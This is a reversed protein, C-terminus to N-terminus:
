DEKLQDWLAKADNQVGYQQQLSREMVLLITLWAIRHQKKWAKFETADKANKADPAEETGDVIGLVEQQELLIDIELSWSKYDTGDFKKITIATLEAM